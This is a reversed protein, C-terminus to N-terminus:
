HITLLAARVGGGIAALLMIALCILGIHRAMRSGLTGNNMKGGIREEMRRGCQIPTRPPMEHYEPMQISSRNKVKEGPFELALPPVIVSPLDPYRVPETLNLWGPM